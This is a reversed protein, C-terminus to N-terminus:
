MTSTVNDAIPLAITCDLGGEAFRMDVTGKLDSTLARELLLRGFGQRHPPQVSPGGAERWHIQLLQAETNVTWDVMVRGLRVSLAGYKAANTALEHFAM